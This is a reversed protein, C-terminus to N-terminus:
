LKGPIFGFQTLNVEVNKRWDMLFCLVFGNKQDQKESSNEQPNYSYKLISELTGSFRDNKPVHDTAM